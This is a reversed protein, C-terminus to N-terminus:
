AAASRHVDLLVRRLQEKAVPKTLYGDMGAELCRERDGEMAHATLAIVPVEAFESPVSRIERTAEYGDMVPMQCDMLVCTYRGRALAVLADKGNEVHDFSYGFGALIKGVVRANVQNDEVLLVRASTRAEQPVQRGVARLEERMRMRNLPSDLCVVPIGRTALAAQAEELPVGLHLAVQADQSGPLVLRAGSAQVATELARRALPRTDVVCVRMGALGPDELPCLQSGPIPLRVKFCSGEGIRSEVAVTGDMRETLRRVIALGLGLGEHARTLSSDAQTFDDFIRSLAEQPIGEGTDTVTFCVGRGEADWEVRLVVEGERTFSLANVLLAVLLQSIRRADGYLYRPCAADIISEVLVDAHLANESFAAQAQADLLAQEVLEEISFDVPELRLQESTLQTLDLIQNVHAMMRFACKQVEKLSERSAGEDQEQLADDVMGLIGNLPTRMEHSMNALFRGKVMSAERAADRADELDSRTQNLVRGTVKTLSFMLILALSHSVAALRAANDISDLERWNGFQLHAGILSLFFLGVAGAVWTAGRMGLLLGALPPLLFLWSIAGSLAGGSLVVALMAMSGATVLFCIALLDLRQGKRVHHFGLAAVATCFVAVLALDLRGSALSAGGLLLMLPFCGGYAYLLLERRKGDRSSPRSPSSPHPM